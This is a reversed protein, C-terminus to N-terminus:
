HCIQGTRNFMLRYLKTSASLLKGCVLRGLWTGTPNEESGLPQCVHIDPTFWDRDPEMWLLMGGPKLCNRADAMTKNADKIGSAINRAQVLDFQNQHDTLGKQFDEIEFRCNPPLDKPDIPVPSLDIGVVEM